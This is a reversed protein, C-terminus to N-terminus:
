RLSVRSQAGTAVADSELAAQRRAAARSRKTLVQDIAIGIVIAIAVGIAMAASAQLRRCAWGVASAGRRSRMRRFRDVCIRSGMAHTTADGLLAGIAAAAAVAVLNADTGAAALAAVAVLVTESPVQEM